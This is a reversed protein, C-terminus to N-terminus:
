GRKESVLNFIEFLNSSDKTQETNRGNRWASKLDGSGEGIQPEEIHTAKYHEEIKAERDRINQDPIQAGSFVVLVSNTIEGDTTKIPEYFGEFIGGTNKFYGQAELIDRQRYIDKNCECQIAVRKVGKTIDCIMPTTDIARKIGALIPSEDKVSVMASCIVLVGSDTFMTLRDAIDINSIKSSKDFYIFRKLHTGINTNITEFKAEILDQEIRTNDVIIMTFGAGNMERLCDLANQQAIGREHMSPLVIIPVINTKPFKKAVMRSAIPVIGSGTGGGAGVPMFIIDYSDKNIGNDGDGHSFRNELQGLFREYELKFAEVAAIRNKGTGVINEFKYKNAPDIQISNLDEASSNVIFAEGIGVKQFTEAVAGGCAGLGISACLIKGDKM